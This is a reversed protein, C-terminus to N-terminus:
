LRKAPRKPCEPKSYFLSNISRCFHFCLLSVKPQRICATRTSRVVPFCRRCVEVLWDLTPHSCEYYIVLTPSHLHLLFHILWSARPRTHMTQDLSPALLAHTRHAFLFSCSTYSYRVLARTACSSTCCTLMHCLAHPMRLYESWHAFLFSCSPTLASLALVKYKFYM